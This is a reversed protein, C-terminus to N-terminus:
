DRFVLPAGTAWALLPLCALLAASIALSAFMAPAAPVGLGLARLGRGTGVRTLWREALLCLAVVAACVVLGWEGRWSSLSASLGEFVLYILLFVTVARM